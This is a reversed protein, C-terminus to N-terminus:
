LLRCVLPRLSQLESTHEESRGLPVECDDTSPVPVFEVSYLMSPTLSVVFSLPPPRRRTANMGGELATVSNLISDLGYSALTPCTNPGTILMLVLPPVLSRCPDRYSQSFFAARSAMFKKSLLAPM